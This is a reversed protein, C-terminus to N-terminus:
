KRNQHWAISLLICVTSLAAFVAIEPLAEFPTHSHRKMSSLWMLAVLLIYSVVGTALYLRWGKLTERRERM